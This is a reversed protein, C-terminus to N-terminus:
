TLGNYETAFDGAFIFLFLTPLISSGV